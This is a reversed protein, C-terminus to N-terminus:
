RLRALGIFRSWVRKLVGFSRTVVIISECWFWSCYVGWISKSDGLCVKSGLGVTGFDGFESLVDFHVKLRFVAESRSWGRGQDRDAWTLSSFKILPDRDLGFRIAILGFGSEDDVEFRCASRSWWSCSRSWCRLFGLFDLNLFVFVARFVEFGLNLVLFWYRLMISVYYREFGLNFLM